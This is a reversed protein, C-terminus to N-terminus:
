GQTLRHEGRFTGPENVPKWPPMFRSTTVEQILKARKKVDRYDLLSFPAVEGPRHCAACHKHVLPAVDKHFTVSGKAPEAASTRVPALAILFLPLALRRTM